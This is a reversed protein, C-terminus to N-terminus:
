RGALLRVAARASAASYGFTNITPMPPDETDPVGTHICIADPFIALVAEARRRGGSGEALSNVVVVCETSSTPHTAAPHTADLDGAALSLVRTGPWEERLASAFFDPAQGAAMNHGGRGDIVLALTITSPFRVSAASPV